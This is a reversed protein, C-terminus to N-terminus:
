NYYKKGFVVNLYINFFAQQNLESDLIPIKTPFVDLLIGAELAVIKERNDAFEFLFGTKLHGGFNFKSENVGLFIGSKGVINQENHIDTDYRENSTENLPKGNADFKAIELYIPKLLAIDLGVQGIYYIEVGKKRFKEYIMYRRGYGLRTLLVSNIKGYKFSRSQDVIQNKVRFEKVHRLSSVDLSYLSYQKYTKFVSRTLTGGWGSTNLHLGGYWESRFGIMNEEEEPEQSLGFLSCVMFMTLIYVSKFAM